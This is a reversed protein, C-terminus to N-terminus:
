KKWYCSDWISWFNSCSCDDSKEEKFEVEVTVFAALALFLVAFIV